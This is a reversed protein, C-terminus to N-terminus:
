GGGGGPQGADRVQPPDVRGATERAGQDSAQKARDRPQEGGRLVCLRCRPMDAPAQIPSDDYEHDERRYERGCATEWLQIYGLSGINEIEHARTWGPLTFWATIESYTSV